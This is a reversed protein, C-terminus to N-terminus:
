PRTWAMTGGDKKLTLAQVREDEFATVFDSVLRRARQRIEDDKIRKAMVLLRIEDPHEPTWAPAGAIFLVELIVDGRRIASGTHSVVRDIGASDAVAPWNLLVERPGVIMIEIFEDPM